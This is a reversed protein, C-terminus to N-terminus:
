TDKWAYVFAGRLSLAALREVAKAGYAVLVIPGGSNGRARQGKKYFHPRGYLFFLANARRWVYKVFGLTETRAFILAIGGPSHCSLKELWPWMDRGYPPNLWVFGKWERTLGDTAKPLAPDDDFPGVAKLIEPPTEWEVSRGRNPLTHGGIGKHLM